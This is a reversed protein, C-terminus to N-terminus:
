IQSEEHGYNMRHQILQNQLVDIWFIIQRLCHMEGFDKWMGSHSLLCRVVDLLTRNKGEAVGNQQSTYPMTMHRILGEDKCFNEVINEM